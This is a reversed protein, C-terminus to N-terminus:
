LTLATSPTHGFGCGLMRPILGLGVNGPEAERLHPLSPVLVQRV